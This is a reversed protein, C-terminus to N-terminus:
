LLLKRKAKKKKKEVLFWRGGLLKAAAIGRNAVSIVRVFLLPAKLRSSWGAVCTPFVSQYAIFAIVHLIM